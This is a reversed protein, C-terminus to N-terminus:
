SGVQEVYISGSGDDIGVDSDIGMIKMSGSGDDVYLAIGQPLRVDLDVSPSDGWGWSRDEFHAILRAEDRVKELSLELHDAIMKLADEEEEDPVNITATVEIKDLDEVGTVALSGAGSDIDLRSVGDSDLELNRDDTYGNWAAHALTAAFMTIVILSRM